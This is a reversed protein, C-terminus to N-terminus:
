YFWTLVEAAVCCHGAFNPHNSQSMYKDIQENSEAKRKFITYADVLGVAYENALKRILQSHKNLPLSEDLPNEILDLTPTMLLVKIQKELAAEIMTRWAKESREVGIYRDNLAYDILIVDPNMALVDRNFREAGQESQEGGIATTIVNIVANPYQAKLGELLLHPYAQLTNVAPTRGYGSPVSHGHIVINLTRNKPWELKLQQKFDSLYTNKEAIKSKSLGTSFIVFLFFLFSKLM